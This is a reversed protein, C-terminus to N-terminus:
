GSNAWRCTRERLFSYFFFFFFWRGSPFDNEFRRWRRWSSIIFAWKLVEIITRERQSKDWSFYFNKSENWYLMSSHPLRFLLQSKSFKNIQFCHFHNLFFSCVQKPKFNWSRYIKTPQNNEEWYTDQAKM